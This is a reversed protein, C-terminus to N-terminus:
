LTADLSVYVSRPEGVFYRDTGFAYDAREAYKVDTLNTVRLTVGLHDSFAYRGRLNFLDHGPYTQQNEPDEFYKGMHVWELEAHLADNPTYALSAWGLNRPATDIDNGDIAVTSLAPTNDYKHVAYTWSLNATLAESLHRSVNVEIGHHRTKGNDVNIRNTDQFIFNHKQMAYVSVDFSYDETGGRAGAEISDLKVSHINAVDQNNQLRYLEATQPARFGRSVNAYLETTDSMNYLWGIHPSLNSFTDHRDAPRNFRCGGFGCPTGDEKTRGDIMRNNYNYRTFEARLGLRLEAATGLAFKRQAFAALTTANVVYDYHKGQPITAVLFASGVTPNPQYEKVFGNTFDADIGAVLNEWRVASQVGISKQGNLEIPEGPLYHQMFNMEAYRLYPTVTVNPGGNPDRELRTYLRASKADRYAEPNPNTRRLADDKYSDHGTIYGATEQNLNTASFVSTAAFAGWQSQNKITVKQQDYGSDDKYGGDTTGNGDLRWHTNGVSVKARYYDHPGAEIAIRRVDTVPATLVNIMGHMANSGYMVSAPGKIVEIGAAQETNADFLENVNCFGSARLPIDDQATLFAGCAGAGSLVPSRLGILMEQGNGRSIWAGSVRALAESVHTSGILDLEKGTVLAINTPVDAVPQPTRAATVVVEELLNANAPLSALWTLLVLLSVYRM